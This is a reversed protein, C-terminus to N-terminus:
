KFVFYLLDVFHHRQVSAFTDKEANKAKNCKNECCNRENPCDNLISRDKIKDKSQQKNSKNNKADYMAFYRCVKVEILSQFVDIGSIDGPDLAIKGAKKLKDALVKLSSVLPFICYSPSGTSLKINFAM